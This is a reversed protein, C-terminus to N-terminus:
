AAVQEVKVTANFQVLGGGIDVVNLVLESPDGGLANIKVIADVLDAMQRMVIMISRRFKARNNGQSIVMTAMLIYDLREYISLETLAQGGKFCPVETRVFKPLTDVNAYLETYRGLGNFKAMLKVAEDFTKRYAKRAFYAGAAVSLIEVIKKESEVDITNIQTQASKTKNSM